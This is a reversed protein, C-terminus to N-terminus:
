AICGPVWGPNSIQYARLQACTLSSKSKALLVVAAVVIVAVIIWTEHKKM